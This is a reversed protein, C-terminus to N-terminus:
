RRRNLMKEVWTEKFKKSYIKRNKM